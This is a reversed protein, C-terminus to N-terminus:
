LGSDRFARTVARRARIEEIGKKIMVVPRRIGTAVELQHHLNIAEDTHEVASDMWPSELVKDLSDQPISLVGAALNEVEYNKEMNEM